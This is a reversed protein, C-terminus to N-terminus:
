SKLRDTFLRSLEDLPKDKLDVIAAAVAIPGGDKGTHENKEVVLGHIKAKGMSASVAASPQETKIALKRAEDLEETITDVTVEHRKQHIAQLEKIRAAMKPNEFLEFAARNITEPKMKSTNYASRYAESKDGCEIFKLAAREQKPTLEKSAGM